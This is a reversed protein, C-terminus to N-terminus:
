KAEELLKRIDSVRWAVSRPGLSIPKPYIGDQIGQYWKSRSVPYIALVGKLRILAMDKLDGLRINSNEMNWGWEASNESMGLM